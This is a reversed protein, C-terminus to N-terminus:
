IYNTKIQFLHMHFEVMDPMNFDDKSNLVLQKLANIECNAYEFSIAYCSTTKVFGAALASKLNLLVRKPRKILRCLVKLAYEGAFDAGPAYLMVSKKGKKRPYGWPQLLFVSHLIM